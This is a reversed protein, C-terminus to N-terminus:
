FLPRKAPVGVRRPYREPCAERQRLRQLAFPAAQDADPVMGLVALGAAPWRSAQSTPSHDTGAASAGAASAGAASAGAASADEAPVGAPPEAVLLHGGVTLLPAACEATVAPPAFSRAVVVSAQGRVSSRGATEARETMVEVRSSLGLDDVASSLFETRRHNSDLLLWRVTPTSVALVLGPIGGGSGLDVALPLGQEGREGVGDEEPAAPSHPWLGLFGLAHEVHKDVAGPGLFGLDRARELVEILNNRDIGEPM